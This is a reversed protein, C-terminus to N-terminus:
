RGNKSDKRACIHCILLHCFSHDVLGKGVGQEADREASIFLYERVECSLHTQVSDLNEDAIPNLYLKIGVAPPRADDPTQLGFIRRAIKERHFHFCGNLLDAHVALVHLTAPAQPNDTGIRAM